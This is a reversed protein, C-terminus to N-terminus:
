ENAEAEHPTPMPPRNPPATTQSGIWFGLRLSRALAVGVGYNFLLKPIVREGLSSNFERPIVLITNLYSNIFPRIRPFRRGLNQTFTHEWTYLTNAGQGLLPVARDARIRHWVRRDWLVRWPRMGFTRLFARTGPFWAKIVALPRSRFSRLSAVFRRLAGRATSQLISKVMAFTSVITALIYAVQGPRGLNTTGGGGPLGHREGKREEGGFELNAYGAWRTVTDLLDDPQNASAGNSGGSRDPPRDTSHDRDRQARSGPPTSEGTVPPALKPDTIAGTNTGTGSPPSTNDHTQRGTGPPAPLNGTGGPVGDPVGNPVGQSGGHDAIGGPAGGGDRSTGGGTSPKARSGGGRQDARPAHGGETKRNKQGTSSGSTEGRGSGGAGSGDKQRGGIGDGNAGVGPGVDKSTGNGTGVGSGTGDGTGSRGSGGNGDDHLERRLDESSPLSALAEALELPVFEALKMATPPISSVQRFAVIEWDGSSTMELDTVWMGQQAGQTRNFARIAQAENLNRGVSGVTRLDSDTALGDPDVHGVPDGRVFQYLNLDDGPGIPDPSLWRGIWPAYYRYGYYYLATADDREKGSYRRDKLGVCTLDGASFATGGYAFYEEYSLIEGAQDVELATSDQHTTLQYQVRAHSTDDTERASVDITWRHVVAIRGSEDAFHHTWRELVLKDDRLIRKRECGGLYVKEITEIQGGHVVRRAIKRVRQCGADYTYAEDDNDGDARAIIVAEDLTGRWSWSVERLHDLRRLNGAADFRAEPDMIAIGNPDVVPLARNSKPSVWMSTTWQRSDGVHRLERLNSAADYAYTQTYAEVAAGNNLTVHQNSPRGPIYDYQLLAQHVRGRAEVIRYHADYRFDRRASITTGQVVANPGPDHARDHLRVLNGVPDWTYRVDQYTRAGRNARQRALRLTDRDYEWALVIGNGLTLRQRQGRADRDADTAIAHDVLVGDPTTIASRGLGGDRRYSTTRITGDAFVARTLRGIADYVSKTVFSDGLKVATRWDPQGTDARLQQTAQLVTGDAAARDVTAIGAHDRVIAIRGLLNRGRADDGAPLDEGYVREEVRHDLGNGRVHTWTPRDLADYAQEVVYGAGDWTGVVRDDADHLTWRDGADISRVFTIRGVMDRKYTFATLARADIIQQEHGEADLRTESRRNDTNGGLSLTGIQLGRPDLFVTTFTDHHARAHEYAQREPDDAPRSERSVRYTSTEVTDNADAREISWAGYRTREFTGNPFLQGVPRGIADYLTLTSVGFTQLEADGEYRWTPSFYPEYTRILRQQADFLQNGSVHWRVETDALVPYGGADVVVHGAGNRQIALGRDVLTKQQLVRGVGDLYSVAIAIRGDPTGGGAGDARLEERTLTVIVPPTGDRTWADVDYYTYSAVGQLFYGPDLLLAAIDAPTRAVHATLPAMGWPAAGVSGRRTEVIAVGLPDYRAEVIGGNPDTIRFLELTHYDLESTTQQKRADTVAVIALQHPDYSFQTSTGDRHQLGARLDFGGADWLQVDDSQWWCGDRLAYGLKILRADDASGSFVDAVFDPSFVASEEHHVLVRSAVAGLPLAATRAEDWYITRSWTLLRAAPAAPTGLDEDHRHPASLAATVDPARLQDRGIRGAVLLGRLEYDREQTPIGLEFRDDDEAHVMEHDSVIVHLLSQAALDAPQGSRRPYSITADRRVHGFDDVAVVVQGVLRPDNATQEYTAVLSEEPTVVFAAATSDAGPQAKRVRQCTQEVVFPHPNRQGHEDVGYTERRVVHGVLARLADEFEGPALDGEVVDPVLAPLDPDGQYTDARRLRAWAPDGLHFWIRTLSPAGASVTGPGPTASEVGATDFVDVHGFGRFVREEGDFFGDHYEYRTTSHTAGILDLDDRQAVVLVHSPLKSVWPHGVRQDRLYDASSSRYSLRTEGGVSDTVSTLLRPRVAPSLPLYELPSADGPLASSWVLCPRGDGLFDLVRISASRDLYPMGRLRPGPTLENGSANIWTRIEGSGVYIIDATGSGDLDVFRLRTADFEDDAAFQPSGDLVVAEGFRGNGLNPWYEVRGNQVRVVDALGDGDMDAFFVKRIPDEVLPPVGEPLPVEIPPGFSDATSPYWTFHDSSPVVVDVRGDGNLDIWGTRDVLSDIQPLSPFPRFGKWRGDQRDFEFFGALRGGLRALDTDGNGDHDGFTFTGPRTAPKELLMTQAGFQGGGLNPKWYWAADGEALIGPLGDGMLDVFVQRRGSLGAPANVFTEASAQAFGSEVAPPAYTMRLPPLARSSPGLPDRRHGIYHVSELTSGEPKPVHKLVLQGILTPTAGLEPIDHFALVRRILRYTRLDFGSRHSSSPDARVLWARDPLAGPRDPDAHDGYDFVLQFAWRVNAPQTGALVSDTLALSSSNGYQIHKLYRQATATRRREAPRSRDVGTMDEAVYEMWVANGDPALRLEPLWTFTRREDNPDAIRAATAPRAGFVTVVNQADRVRFHIRGTAVETWREVRVATGGTRLRYLAVQFAGARRTRQRWTVGALELWPVLEQGSLQYTDTGDWRPVHDRTDIEISPLGSLSWGVGLPSSRVPGSSYVLALTPELGARGPPAPIPISLTAAGTRHDVEIGHEIRQEGPGRGGLELM